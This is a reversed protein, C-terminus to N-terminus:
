FLVKGFDFKKLWSREKPQKEGFPLPKVKTLCALMNM